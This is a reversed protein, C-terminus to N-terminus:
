LTKKDNSKKNIGDIEIIKNEKTNNNIKTKNNGKKINKEINIYYKFIENFHETYNIPFNNDELYKFVNSMNETNKNKLVADIIEYFDETHLENRNNEVLLEQIELGEKISNLFDKTPKIDNETYSICDSIVKELFNKKENFNNNIIMEEVKNYTELVLKEGDINKLHNKEFEKNLLFALDDLDKYEMKAKLDKLMENSFCNPEKELFFSLDYFDRIKDRNGFAVLKMKLIEDLNYVNVGNINSYKLIKSNLLNKNRSSIEIKLPYSGNDNKAGYDLMIRYVTDTNKKVNIEWNNEKIKNYINMNDSFADLDIDESFRDLGYYLLLATGGKLVYNDGIKNLIKKLVELREIQWNKLIKTNIGLKEM